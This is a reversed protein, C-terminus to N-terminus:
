AGLYAKDASVEKMQFGSQATKDVLPKYFPYDNAHGDSVEVSTVINTKVGTMLHLKLWQRCDEVQGYKVDFWRVFQGTSFGSSDVAFDTEVSKLPLSSLKILQKLCDTMQPLELYNFISNFHPTRSIYGRRQAEKLDSIFRRGSFLSYVKFVMCFIM